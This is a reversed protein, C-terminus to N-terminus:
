RSEAPVLGYRVYSDVEGLERVVGYKRMAALHWLIEKSPMNLEAALGPVTAPQAQLLKVISKRAALLDKHRKLKAEDVGGQRKRFEGLAKKQEATLTKKTAM